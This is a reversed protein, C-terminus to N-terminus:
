ETINRYKLTAQVEGFFQISLLTGCIGEDGVKTLVGVDAQLM